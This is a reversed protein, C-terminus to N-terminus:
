NASVSRRRTARVRKRVLLGALTIGFALSGIMANPEPVASNPNILQSIEYNVKFQVGDNYYHCDADFGLGLKGDNQFYQNLAILNSLTFTYTYNTATTTFSKSELFTKSSNAAVVWPAAKGSADVGNHYRTNAFDDTLDTVNPNTPNDDYFRKVGGFTTTDLLYMHLKNAESNWNRINKFSITASTFSIQSRDYGSVTPAVNWTIVEHHDLDWLDNRVGSYASPNFTLTGTKLIAQANAVDSVFLGICPAVLFVLPRIASRM